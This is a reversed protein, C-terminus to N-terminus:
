LRGKKLVALNRELGCKALVSLMHNDAIEVMASALLVSSKIVERNIM